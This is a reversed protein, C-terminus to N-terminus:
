EGGPQVVGQPSVTVHTRVGDKVASANWYNGCGKKLESVQHYGGANMKKQADAATSGDIRDSAECGIPPLDAARASSAINLSLAAALLAIAAPGALWHRIM